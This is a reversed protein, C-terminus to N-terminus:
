VGRGPALLAVRDREGGAGRGARSAPRGAPRHAEGDDRGGLERRGPARGADRRWCRSGPAARSPAAALWPDGRRDADGAPRQPRAASPARRGPRGRARDRRGDGVRAGGGSAAGGLEGGARRGPLGEALALRVPAPGARAARRPPAPDRPRRRGAPRLGAGPGTRAARPRSGRRRGGRDTRRVVGEPARGSRRIPGPYPGRARGEIHMLVLGCGSQAALEFLAPDAAGSIDNIAVAGADLAQRAVEASFTDATM